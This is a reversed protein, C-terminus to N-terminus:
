TPLTKAEWGVLNKEKKGFVLAIMHVIKGQNMYKKAYGQKEIQELAAAIAKDKGAANEIVKLELIFAQKQDLLVMDSRGHSTSEEVRLDVDLVRFAMYLLGGYWAEYNALGQKQWQCPLGALHSSVTEAFCEFDNKILLDMLKESDEVTIKGDTIHDLLDGVLYQRVEFNPYDLRYLTRYGKKIKKAITLYGSQFFLAEIALNEPDFTSFKTKEIVGHAVDKISVQKNKVFEYLYKPISNQYWWDEFEKTEFLNMVGLPNYVKEGLWNYGNYWRRIKKRNLGIMEKAFVEDLEKETYGCIAGYKSRLSIDKLNNLGSFITAKPFMTIGTIFVFRIYDDCGKIMSYFKRLYKENVAAAKKDDLVDLIPRDYEDILLVVKKNTKKQWDVILRYLYSSPSRGAYKTVDFGASDTATDLQDIIREKISEPTDCDGDFSIRIVPYKTSWDWHDYIHLGKFLEKEGEFLYQLTRVLLSKGFRRPRSLFYYQGERILAELYKTKDVYYFNGKRINKFNPDGIPFQM